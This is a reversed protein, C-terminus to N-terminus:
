LTIGLTSLRIRRIYTGDPGYLTLVNNRLTWRGVDETIADLDQGVTPYFTQENDIQIQNGATVNVDRNDETTQVVRAGFTDPNNYQNRDANWVATATQTETLPAANLKITLVAGNTGSAGRVTLTVDSAGSALAENPMDLRYIGPMNVPDVEAFGGSIWSQTITRAVLNIQVPSSRTRNYYASLGTTSATLGTVGLYLEISQSTSGPDITITSSNRETPFYNGIAGISRLTVAGADPNLGSWAIGFMDTTPAGTPNGFSTNPSAQNTGLMQGFVLGQQLAYSGFLGFGGLTSSNGGSVGNTVTNTTGIYRNYDELVTNSTASYMGYICSIFLNNRVITQFSASGGNNEFGTGNGIFTNNYAKCQLNTIGVANSIHCMIICNKILTNDAVNQGVLNIGRASSTQNFFIYCSDFTANLATAAPSTMNVVNGNGTTPETFQCRIFSINTCTTCNISATVGGSSPVEFHINEFSLYNKSTMLLLSTITKIGTTSLGTWLVEGANLGSFQSATPDGIIRTTSTASTMGVTVSENYRGPSVYLIDGSSIGSAGLAKTLTQWAQSPTSGTGTNANNGDPRVYYTAM